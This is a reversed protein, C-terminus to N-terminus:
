IVKWKSNIWKNWVEQKWNQIENYDDFHNLLKICRWMKRKYICPCVNALDKCHLNCCRHWYITAMEKWLTCTKLTIYDAPKLANESQFIENREFKTSWNNIHWPLLKKRTSRGSHWGILRNMSYQIGNWLLIRFIICNLVNSKQKWKTTLSSVM